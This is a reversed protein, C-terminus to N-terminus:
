RVFRVMRGDEGRLTYQGAVLDSVDVSMRGSVLTVTRLTRGMADIVDFRGGTVAGADITMRTGVPNPYVSLTNESFRNVERIASYTRSGDMDTQAIRYYGTGSVPDRDTLEYARGSAVTGAADVEGIAAFREGDVSREVTFYDNDPEAATGWELLVTKAQNTATFSTWNVPMAGGNAASFTQYQREEGFDGVCDAIPPDYALARASVDGAGARTDASLTRQTVGNTLRFSMVDNPDAVHKLQHTHGIEHLAVSEFDTDNNPSGPGPGYNYNVTGNRGNPDGNRRFLVDIGTVEVETSTCFSYYSFVIGVVGAGIEDDFDYDNSGFAVINVNDDRSPTQINTTGDLYISYDGETQWTNVARQLAALAPANDALSVGGNASSNSVALAYGGNGDAEDDILVPRVVSDDDLVLTTVAYDIDIRQDSGVQQGAATTVLVRGSGAESIVRVQIRTPTWSIINNPAVSVFAGGPGDDPSDFFISGSQSGFGTGEITIVEGIGASVALPTISEILPMMRGGFARRTYTRDTIPQLERGTTARLIHDVGALGSINTDGDTFGGTISDFRMFSEHVAAPRYIATEGEPVAVRNGNYRRLLFVGEAGEIQRLSPYVITQEENIRGGMTFFHVFFPEENGETEEMSVQDVRLRHMTCIEGFENYFPESDIVEGVAVVSAESIRDALLRSNYCQASVSFSLLNLLSFYCFLRM